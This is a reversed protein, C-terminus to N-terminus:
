NTSAESAQDFWGAIDELSLRAETVQLAFAELEENSATLRYGNMQLFIGAAAIGTRKNGDVFPHNRILSDILAAAKLHLTSYLDQGAFTAQPRAVAATLLGLDRVGSSGGTEVILRDHIFLIQAATLYIV